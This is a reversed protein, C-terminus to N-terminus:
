FPFKHHLKLAEDHQCSPPGLDVLCDIQVHQLVFTRGHAFDCCHFCEYQKWCSPTGDWVMLLTLKKQLIANGSKQNLSIHGGEEGSRLTISKALLGNQLPLHTDLGVVIHIVELLGEPPMLQGQHM